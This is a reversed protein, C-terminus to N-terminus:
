NGFILAVEWPLFVLAVKLFTMLKVFKETFIVSKAIVKKGLSFFWHWDTLKVSIKDFYLNKTLNEASIKGIKFSISQNHSSKQWNLLCHLFVIARDNRPFCQYQWDRPAWKEDDRPAEGRTIFFHTGRSQCYWHM